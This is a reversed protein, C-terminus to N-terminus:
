EVQINPHETMVFFDYLLHHHAKFKEEANLMNLKYIHAEVKAMPHIFTVGINDFLLLEYDHAISDHIASILMTKINYIVCYRYFAKWLLLKIQQSKPNSPISLRSAEACPQEAPTLLSDINLYRDFEINGRSRDLIRITGLAQNTADTALLLTVNAAHDFEDIIEKPNHINYHKSYGKWRIKFVKQLDDDTVAKRVFIDNVDTM